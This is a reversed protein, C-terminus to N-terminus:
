RITTQMQKDKTLEFCKTYNGKFSRGGMEYCQM